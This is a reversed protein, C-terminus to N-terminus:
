AAKKDYEGYLTTGKKALERFMEPPEYLWGHKTALKDATEVFKDLGIMDIYSMPGGTWPCFGWGFIAGLDASQPDHVVGQAYMRAAAVLNVYLLREQVEEVTPQEEALPYHEKLGPWFYKKSGDEPYEYFGKGVKKGKRGLEEVFLELLDETPERKYNEGEAKQRSRAINLGLEQSTEDMLALPGVPMGMHLAGNDILAPNIGEMVMRAAENLYPVVCSNCYFGRADAVVIPTKKIKGVYDLAVALAKDGGNAHPIIEVLPMKDVPSFFHIGIFKDARSSYEALDGIPITSTNTAFVTSDPIIAETKKITEAKVDPDEFVAEIILDVDKLHDYDTTPTIRALMEESKEKSLKGRKVGKENLKESYAKGKEAYEQERDILVVELGAKASVYAIGAGMMGAGLVGIKKLDTKEVGEPRAMGKEAATKNKFLTRIMNRSQPEMLCQTFYKSEIRLAVDMPVISGEYVASLIRRAAPYNHNTVGATMASAGAFIPVIKPNMAGGGGNPIKFSKQDWPQVVKPNAKVWEKAKAVIEDKPAIEDILGLRKAKEADMNKGQTCIEIANQVGALRMIRQTGGAGPILGVLVEPQGFQTKGSDSAVKYHGALVLEMGGGLALGDVAVAVPKAKALNKELEKAPKGGTELKRLITQLRYNQDFIFQPDADPPIMSIMNLDAGALFGTDKGSQIVLGKIEDNSIFDDAMKEFDEVLDQNWVNMSQGPLDITLLAIGDSDVDFSFTNYSM